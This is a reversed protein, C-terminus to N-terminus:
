KDKSVSVLSFRTGRQGSSWAMEVVVPQMLSLGNGVNVSVSEGVFFEGFEGSEPDVLRILNFIKGDKTKVEKRGAFLAKGVLM